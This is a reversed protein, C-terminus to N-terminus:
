FTIKSAVRQKAIHIFHYLHTILIKQEIKELPLYTFLHQDNTVLDYRFLKKLLNAQAKQVNHYVKFDDHLKTDPDILCSIPCKCPHNVLQYIRQNAVSQCNVLQSKATNQFIHANTLTASNPFKQNLIITKLYFQM